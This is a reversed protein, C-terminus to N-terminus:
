VSRLSLLTAAVPTNTIFSPINVIGQVDGHLVIQREKDPWDGHILVMGLLYCVAAIQCHRQIQM